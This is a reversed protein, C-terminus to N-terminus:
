VPTSGAHTRCSPSRQRWRWGPPSASPRRACRLYSPRSAPPTLSVCLLACAASPRSRSCSPTPPTCPPSAVPTTSRAAALPVDVRRRLRSLEDLTAVPQEVLELDYRALERIMHAAEDVDWAGNADVRLAVLPGIANRVAAVLDLDAGPDARGVKVKVAPFGELARSEVGADDVLANVAIADRVRAPWGDCAAERAADWAAQPDCPYGPLPSCEGWGAPGELLTV